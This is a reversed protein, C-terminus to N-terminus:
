RRALEAKILRQSTRLDDIHPPCSVFQREVNALLLKLRETPETALFEAAMAIDRARKNIKPHLLHM